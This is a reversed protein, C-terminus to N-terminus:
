HSNSSRTPSVLQGLWHVKRKRYCDSFSLRNQNRQGYQRSWGWVLWMFHIILIFDWSKAYPSVRSAPPFHFYNELFYNQSNNWSLQFKLINLRYLVKKKKKSVSTWTEWAPRLSTNRSPPRSGTEGKEAEWTRPNSTQRVVDTKNTKDSSPILGPAEHMSYLCRGLSSWGRGKPYTRSGLKEDEFIIWCRVSSIGQFFFVRESRPWKRGICCNSETLFQEYM